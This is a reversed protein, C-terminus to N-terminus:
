NLGHLLRGKRGKPSAPPRRCGEGSPLSPSPATEASALSFPLEWCAKRRTGKAKRRQKERCPNERGERYSAKNWGSPVSAAAADRCHLMWGVSGLHHQLAPRQKSMSGGGWCM